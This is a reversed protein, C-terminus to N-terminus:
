GLRRAHQPFSQDLVHAPDHARDRGRVNTQSACETRRNRPQRLTSAPGSPRTTPQVRWTTVTRHRHRARVRLPMRRAPPTTPMSASPELQANGANLWATGPLDYVVPPTPSGLDPRGPLVHYTEVEKVQLFSTRRCPLRSTKVTRSQATRGAWINPDQCNPNCNTLQPYPTWGYFM